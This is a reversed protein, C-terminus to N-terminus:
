VINLVLVTFYSVIGIVAPIVGVGIIWRWTSDMTKLCKANCHNPMADTPIGNHQSAVVILTVLTAALQGLPQCMFVATM